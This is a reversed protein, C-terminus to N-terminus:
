LRGRAQVPPAAFVCAVSLPLGSLQALMETGQCREAREAFRIAPSPVLFPGEAGFLSGAVVLFGSSLFVGMCTRLSETGRDRRSSSRRYRRAARGPPRSHCSPVRRAQPDAAKLLEPVVASLCLDWGVCVLYWDIFIPHRPRAPRPVSKKKPPYRISM